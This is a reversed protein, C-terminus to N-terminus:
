LPRPQGQPVRLAILVRALENASLLGASNKAFERSIHWRSLMEFMVDCAPLSMGFKHKIPIAEHPPMDQFQSILLFDGENPLSLHLAQLTDALRPDFDHHVERLGSRVYRRATQPEVSVIRAATECVAYLVSEDGLTAQHPHHDHHRSWTELLLDLQVQPPVARLFPVETLFGFCRDGTLGVQDALTIRELTEFFAVRFAIYAVDTQPVATDCVTLMRAVTAFRM